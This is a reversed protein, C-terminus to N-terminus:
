THVVQLALRMLGEITKRADVLFTALVPLSLRYRSRSHPNYTEPYCKGIATRRLPSLAFPTQREGKARKEGDCSCVGFEFQLLSLDFFMKAGILYLALTPIGNIPVVKGLTFGQGAFRM